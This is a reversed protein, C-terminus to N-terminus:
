EVEEGRRIRQAYERLYKRADREAEALLVELHASGLKHLCYLAMMRAHEQDPDARAWAALALEEVADSGIRLLSQLARRRVYERDDQAFALLLAEAEPDDMSGLEVALQWRADPEGAVLSARALRIILAPHHCRIEEAIHQLENDRAIAYLLAQLEADSWSEFPMRDVFEFAAAYLTAWGKYDCEWEGYREDTPILAAWERFRAVEDMLDPM